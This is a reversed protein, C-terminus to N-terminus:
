ALEGGFMDGTNPCRETSEITAYHAQIWARPELSAVYEYQQMEQSHDLALAADRYHARIESTEKHKFVFVMAELFDPETM